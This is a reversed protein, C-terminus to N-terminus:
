TGIWFYGRSDILIDSITHDCLGNKTTFSTFEKGDFKSLGAGTGFWIHGSDDEIISVVRNSLLGDTTTFYALSNGDYRAVGKGLTGFWLNGKSDEFTEVVYDGIQTADEKTQLYETGKKDAAPTKNNGQSTCAIATPILM